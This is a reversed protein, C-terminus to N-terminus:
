SFLLSCPSAVFNEPHCHCSESSRLSKHIATAVSHPLRSCKRPNCHVASPKQLNCLTPAPEPPSRSMSSPQLHSCLVGSPSRAVTGQDLFFYHKLSSLRLLLNEEDMILELLKACAFGYAQDIKAGYERHHEMYTIKDKYPSIVDRGCERIVNLYKGTMLIRNSYPHLFAPFMESRLIYRQEWYKDMHGWSLQEKKYHPQEEILFEGRPDNICGQYLWMELMEFYPATAKELLFQILARAQTDGALETFTQYLQQLLGGGVCNLADAQRCINYMTSMNHAAPQLHYYLKQLSFGEQRRVQDELKGILIMYEKMVADVAAAFAQAVLGWEYRSYKAVYQSIFVHHKCLPLHRDVLDALPKDVGPDVDFAIEASNSKTTTSIYVGEYGLLANLVDECIVQEQQDQPISKFPRPRTKEQHKFPPYLYSKTIHPREISWQPVKLAM